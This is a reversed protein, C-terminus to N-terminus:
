STSTAAKIGAVGKVDKANEVKERKIRRTRTPHSERYQVMAKFDIIYQFGSIFVRTTDLKRQYAEEIDSSTREEFMWWGESRAAYYWQYSRKGAGGEPTVLHSTALLSPHDLFERPVEERCMCCRSDRALVGKICLFCFIHGCPTQVPHVATSRCIPCELPEGESLPPASGSDRQATKTKSKETTIKDGKEAGKKGEGGRKEGESQRKAGEESRVKGEESRVEEGENGEESRVKGEECRVGGSESRVGGEKKEEKSRVGEVENEKGGEESEKRDGETVVGSVLEGGVSASSTQQAMTTQDPGCVSSSGTVVHSLRRGSGIVLQGQGGSTQEAATTVCVGVPHQDDAM